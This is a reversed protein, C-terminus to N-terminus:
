MGVAMPRIFELPARRGLYLRRMFGRRAAPAAPTAKVALDAALATTSTLSAVAFSLAVRKM